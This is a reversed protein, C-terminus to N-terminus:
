NGQVRLAESYGSSAMSPLPFISARSTLLFVLGSLLSNIGSELETGEESSKLGLQLCVLLECKFGDVSGALVSGYSLKIFRSKLYGPLHYQQLFFTYM